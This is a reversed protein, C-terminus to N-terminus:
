SVQTSRLCCWCALVGRLCACTEESDEGKEMRPGGSWLGGSALAGSWHGLTYVAWQGVTYRRLARTGLGLEWSGEEGAEM